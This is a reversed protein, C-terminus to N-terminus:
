RAPRPAAAPSVTWAALDLPVMAAAHGAFSCRSLATPEPSVLVLFRAGVSLKGPTWVSLPFWVHWEGRAQGAVLLSRDGDVLQVTMLRLSTTCILRDVPGAAATRTAIALALTLIRM